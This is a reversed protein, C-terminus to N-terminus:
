RPWPIGFSTGAQYEPTKGLWTLKVTDGTTTNQSTGLGLLTSLALLSTALRAMTLWKRQLFLLILASLSPNWCCLSVSVGIDEHEDRLVGM